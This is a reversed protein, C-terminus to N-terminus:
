LQRSPDAPPKTIKPIRVELGADAMFQDYAHASAKELADEWWKHAVAVDGAALMGAVRLCTGQGPNEVTFQRAAPALQNAARARCTTGQHTLSLLAWVCNWAAPRKWDPHDMLSPTLLADQSALRAEATLRPPNFYLILTIGIVPRGGADLSSLEGKADMVQIKPVDDREGNLRDEDGIYEPGTRTYKSPGRQPPGVMYVPRPPARGDDLDIADASMGMVLGAEEDDPEEQEPDPLTEM